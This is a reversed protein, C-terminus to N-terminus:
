LKKSPISIVHVDPFSKNLVSFHRLFNLTFKDLTTIMARSLTATISLTLKLSIVIQLEAQPVVSDATNSGQGPVSPKLIWRQWLQQMSQLQPESRIGPWPGGYATPHWFVFVFVSKNFYLSIYFHKVSICFNLKNM